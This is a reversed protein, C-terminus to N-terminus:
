GTAGGGCAAERPAAALRDLWGGLEQGPPPLRALAPPLAAASAPTLLLLIADDIQPLRDLAAALDAPGFGGPLAPAIIATGLHAIEPPLALPQCVLVRVRGAPLRALAPALLATLDAEPACPLQVVLAGHRGLHAAVASAIAADAGLETAAM